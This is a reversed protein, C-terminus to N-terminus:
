KQFIFFKRCAFNILVNPLVFGAFAALPPWGLSRILWDHVAAGGIAGPANVLTFVLFETVRSHRGPTFVWRANLLYATANSFVFAIATNILAHDARVSRDPANSELAPLGWRSLAFYVVAQVILATVGCIGYKMFQIVPHVDRRNLAAVIARLDNERLFRILDRM